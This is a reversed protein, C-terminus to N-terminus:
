TCECKNNRLLGYLNGLTCKVTSEAENLILIILGSLMGHHCDNDGDCLWANWICDGNQCQFKNNPCGVVPPEVYPKTNNSGGPGSDPGCEEEDSGDSHM